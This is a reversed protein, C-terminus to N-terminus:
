EKRGIRAMYWTGTGTEKRGECIEKLHNGNRGQYQNWLLEGMDMRSIEWNRLDMYHYLKCVGVIIM